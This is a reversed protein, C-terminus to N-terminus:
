YSRKANSLSIAVYWAILKGFCWALKQSFKMSLM